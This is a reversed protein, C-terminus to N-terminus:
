VAARGAQATVAHIGLKRCADLRFQNNFAYSWARMLIWFDSSAKEGLLDERASETRTGVNRLLLDRGQTLAAVLCAQVYLPWVAIGHHLKREVRRHTRRRGVLASPHQEVVIVHDRNLSVALHEGRLARRKGRDHPRLLLHQLVCEEVEGAKTCGTTTGVIEIAKAGLGKVPFDPSVASGSTTFTVLVLAVVGMSLKTVIVSASGGSTATVAMVSEVPPQRQVTAVSLQVRVVSSAAPALSATVNVRLTPVYVVAGLGPCNVAVTESAVNEVLGEAESVTIKWCCGTMVQAVGLAIIKPVGNLPVCSSAVALTAPLKTYEGAAPATSATPWCVRCAVNVGM